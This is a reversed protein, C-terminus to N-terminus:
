RSTHLINDHISSNQLKGLVILTTFGYIENNKIEVGYTATSKNQYIGVGNDYAKNAVISDGEIICSDITVYDSSDIAIAGWKHDVVSPENYTHEHLHCNKIEIYDGHTQIFWDDFNDVAINTMELNNIEIYDGYITLLDRVNDEGDFLPRTWTDGKYWSLDARYTDFNEATGSNVITWGGQKAFLNSPWVVGGKFVFNDGGQHEYDSSFGLMGPARKWPTNKTQGNNADDGNEYDIYYDRAFVVSTCFLFIVLCSITLNVLKM